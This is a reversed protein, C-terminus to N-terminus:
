LIRQFNTLQGCQHPEFSYTRGNPSTSHQIRDQWLLKFKHIFPQFYIDIEYKPNSPGPVVVILFICLKEM